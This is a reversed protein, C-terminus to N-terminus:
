DSISCRWSQAASYRVDKSVDGTVRLINVFRMIKKQNADNTSQPVISISEFNPVISSSMLFKIM